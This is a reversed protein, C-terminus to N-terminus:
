NLNNEDSDCNTIHEGVNTPVTETAILLQLNETLKRPMLRNPEAKMKKRYNLRACIYINLYTVGKQISIYAGWNKQIQQKIRQEDGKRLTSIQVTEPFWL